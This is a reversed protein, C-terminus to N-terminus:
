GAAKSREREDIVATLLAGLFVVLSAYYIWLLALALTGMSGYSSTPDASELYWGILARGLMFLSSTLAGGALARRWYVRRDPMFHYMLAFAATYVLWAAVLMMLPLMWELRGFLFQMATTVSLSVILLFGVAFVLGFSFIRKRLWTALDPLTTADTRFIKNLADQLQAFVATAGIFLLLIGWGRALLGSRPADNASEVVTTAVRRADDGMLVGIQDLLAEQATPLLGDVLWLLLLLLPAMSLVAYFALAAAQSLLDADVFRRFMAKVLDGRAPRVVTKVSVKAKPVPAASAPSAKRAQATKGTPKRTDASRKTM